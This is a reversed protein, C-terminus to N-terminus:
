RTERSGDEVTRCFVVVANGTNPNNFECVSNGWRELRSFWLSPKIHTAILFKAGVKRAVQDVYELFTGIHEPTKSTAYMSYLVWTGENLQMLNARAPFRAWLDHVELSLEVAPNGRLLPTVRFVTGPHRTEDSLLLGNGIGEIGDSTTKM